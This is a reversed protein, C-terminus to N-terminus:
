PKLTALVDAPKRNADKWFGPTRFEYKTPAFTGVLDVKTGEPPIQDALGAAWYIGNVLLRRTGAIALDSSSGVTSTFVKGPTGEPVQYTKTWAVPMMPDNKKGEVPESDDPRMGFHLDSPSYEGKRKMVQGLVLPASDGPLPLRVTYVDTSGWVDGNAIGRLIPNNEAGPAILGRTSEHKHEGHHAVWQEGLVLRGFGDRWATKDGNYGNAYHGWTSNAPANFAHTSTRIGVVPKGARLFQDIHQMQEDPLDRFRTFIVMVDANDLAELGPINKTYTPDIYGGDPNIAFVVTTDFGHHESLIAALQPLAEESRYEEDGSVFVVKKGKGPGEKGALSIGATQAPAGWTGLLVGAMVAWVIRKM